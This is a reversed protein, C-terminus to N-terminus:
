GLKTPLSHNRHVEEFGDKIFLSVVEAHTPILKVVFPDDSTEKVRMGKETIEYM